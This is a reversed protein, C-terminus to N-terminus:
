RQIIVGDKNKLTMGSMLQRRIEEGRLQALAKRGFYQDVSKESHGNAMSRLFSVVADAREAFADDQSTGKKARMAEYDKISQEIIAKNRQPSFNADVKGDAVFFRQFDDKQYDKQGTFDM